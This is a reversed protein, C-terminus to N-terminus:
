GVEDVGETRADVRRNLVDEEGVADINERRGLRNIGITPREDGSRRPAKVPM